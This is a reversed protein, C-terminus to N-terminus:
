DIRKMQLIRVFDLQYFVSPYSFRGLYEFLKEKLEILSQFTAQYASTTRGLRDLSSLSLGILCKGADDYKLQLTLKESNTQYTVDGFATLRWLAYDTRLEPAKPAKRSVIVQKQELKQGAPLAGDIYEIENSKLMSKFLGTLLVQLVEDQIFFNFEAEQRKYEGVALNYMKKLYVQMLAEILITHIKSTLKKDNWEKLYHEHREDAMREMIAAMESASITSFDVVPPKYTSLSPESFGNMVQIVAYVEDATLSEIDIDALPNEGERYQDLWTTSDFEKDLM